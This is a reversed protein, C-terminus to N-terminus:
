RGGVGDLNAFSIIQPIIEGGLRFFSGEHLVTLETYAGKWVGHKEIMEAPVRLFRIGNVRESPVVGISVRDKDPQAFRFEIQDASVDKATAVEIELHKANIIAFIDVGDKPRRSFTVMGGSLQILGIVANVGGDEVIDRKRAQEQTLGTQTGVALWAEDIELARAIAKIVDPKPRMAGSYYKNIAQTTVHVGTRTYVYDRLWKQRGYDIAPSLPHGEVAQRLRIAFPSLPAPKKEGKEAM